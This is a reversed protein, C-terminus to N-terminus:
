RIGAKKRDWRLKADTYWTRYTPTFVWRFEFVFLIIIISLVILSKNIKKMKGGFMIM